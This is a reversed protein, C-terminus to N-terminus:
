RRRRRVLAFRSALTNVLFPDPGDTEIRVLDGPTTVNKIRVWDHPRQLAPMRGARALDVARRLHSRVQEATVPGGNLPERDHWRAAPDLHLILRDPEPQEWSAALAPGLIARAPDLWDV